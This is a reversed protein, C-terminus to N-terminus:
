SPEKTLALRPGYVAWLEGLFLRGFRELARAPHPGVARFTTMQHVFDRVLITIVGAGLVPAAADGDPPVHGALM